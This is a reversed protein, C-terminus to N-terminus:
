GRSSKTSEIQKEQEKQKEVLDDRDSAYAAPGVPTVVGAFGTLAIAFAAIAGLHKKRNM